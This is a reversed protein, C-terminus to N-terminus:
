VFLLRNQQKGNNDGFTEDSAITFKVQMAPLVGGGMEDGVFNHTAMKLAEDSEIPTKIEGKKLANEYMSDTWRRDVLAVDSDTADEENSAANSSPITSESWVVYFYCLCANVRCGAVYALVLM